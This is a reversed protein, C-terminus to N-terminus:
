GRAPNQRIVECAFAAVLSAAILLARLQKPADPVDRLMAFLLRITLAEPM